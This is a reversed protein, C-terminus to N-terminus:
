FPQADVFGVRSVQINNVFGVVIKAKADHIVYGPFYQGTWGWPKM